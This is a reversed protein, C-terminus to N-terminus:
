VKMVLQGRVISDGSHAPNGDYPEDSIDVVDYKSMDIGDPVTFTGSGDRVVGLSVLSKLDSTMLWAERYGSKSAPESLTVHVLRAGDSRKEVIAKGASGQWGPFADLTASALVITAPPTLGGTVAVGAGAVIVMSAAVAVPIV